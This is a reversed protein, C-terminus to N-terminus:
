LYQQLVNKSNLTIIDILDQSKIDLTSLDIEILGGSITGILIRKDAVISESEGTFVGCDIIDSWFVKLKNFEFGLQTTKFITKFNSFLARYGFIFLLVVILVLGIYVSNSAGLSIINKFNIVTIYILGIILLITLSLDINKNHEFSLNHTDEVTKYKSNSNRKVSKFSTYILSKEIKSQPISYKLNVDNKFQEKLKNLEVTDIEFNLCKLGFEAVENTISCCLGKILNPKRKACIKCFSLHYNRDM